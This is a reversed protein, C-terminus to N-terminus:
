DKIVIEVRRNEQAQWEAYEPNHMPRSFGMGIAKIRNEPIGNKVLERKVQQARRLSLLKNVAENGRSDTHGIVEITANPNSKLYNAFPQIFKIYGEDLKDSNFAFMAVVQPPLQPEEINIKDGVYTEGKVNIKRGAKNVGEIAIEYPGESKSPSYAIYYYNHFLRPLEEFIDEIEKGQNTYYYKGDTLTAIKKLLAEDVGGFGVTYIKTNTERAHFILHSPKFALKLDSFIFSSIFSCNELGDTFLIMIKNKEAESLSNIGFSAGAILATAWGFRQLQDYIYNKMAIKKPALPSELHLRADYKVVAVNDDDKILNFFKRVSNELKQIPEGAMSGSHDLVLCFNYNQPIYDHHETVTFDTIERVNGGISEIVKKFYEKYTSEEGYPPALNAIFNGYKDKVSVYIGMSKPYNSRDFGFISFRWDNDTTQTYDVLGKLYNTEQNHIEPKIKPRELVLKPYVEVVLDKTIKKGKAESILTYTRTKDARISLMGSLPLNEKVGEIAVKEANEVQWYFTIEQGEEVRQPATFELIRLPSSCSAILILATVFFIKRM